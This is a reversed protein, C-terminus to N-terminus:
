GVEQAGYRVTGEPWRAGGPGTVGEPAYVTVGRGGGRWGEVVGMVVESWGTVVLVVASRGSVRGLAAELREATVRGKPAEVRALVDLLEGGDAFPPVLLHAGTAVELWEGHHGEELVAFLLSGAARVGDDLVSAGAGAEAVLMVAVRGSLEEEFTKVMMGQGKASAKWHIQRLSDGPQMPRVGHFHAGSATLGRGRYRGGVMADYGAARPSRTVFVAPHVIVEGALEQGCGVEVLGFPGSSVVRVAANPFVGRKWYTFDPLVSVGAGPGLWAVRGLEGWPSEVRVMGVGRRGGNVLRWPHKLRQGEAVRAVPPPEVMLRRVGRFAIGANALGSGVVVGVLLLLLGSQSTVSALYLLGAVGALGWGMRTVRWSYRAAM